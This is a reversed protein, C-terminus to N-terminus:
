RVEIVFVSSTSGQLEKDDDATWSGMVGYYYVGQELPAKMSGDNLPIDIVKDGRFQQVAIQAPAIKSDFSVAIPSEPTIRAPKKGKLLTEAGPYDVCSNGWCYSSQMVPIVKQDSIVKAAPPHDSCGNLLTCMAIVLFVAIAPIRMM